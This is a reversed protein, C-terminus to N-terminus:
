ADGLLYNTLVLLTKETSVVKELARQLIIYHINDKKIQREEMKKEILGVISDKNYKKWGIGSLETRFMDTIISNLPNPEKAEKKELNEIHMGYGLKM